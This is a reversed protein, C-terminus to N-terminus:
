LLSYRGQIICKMMGPLRIVETLKREDDVTFNNKHSNLIDPKVKSKM